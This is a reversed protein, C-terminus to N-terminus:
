ARAQELQLRPHPLPWLVTRGSRAASARHVWHWGAGLSHEPAGDPDLWLHSPLMYWSRPSQFPMSPLLTIHASCHCVPLPRSGPAPSTLFPRSAGKGQAPTLCPQALGAQAPWGPAGPPPVPPPPSGPDARGHKPCRSAPGHLPLLHAPPTPLANPRWLNPDPNLFPLHKARLRLWWRCIVM